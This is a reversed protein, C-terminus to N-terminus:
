EVMAMSMIADRMRCSIAERCMHFTPNIAMSQRAASERARALQSEPRPSSVRQGLRTSHRGKQGDRNTRQFTHRHSQAAAAATNVKCSLRTTLKHPGRIVMVAYCVKAVNCRICTHCARHSRTTSTPTHSTTNYPRRLVVTRVAHLLRFRDFLLCLVSITSSLITPENAQKNIAYQIGQKTAHAILERDDICM